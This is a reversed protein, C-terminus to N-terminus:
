WLVSILGPMSGTEFLPGLYVVKFKWSKRYQWGERALFLHDRKHGLALNITLVAFHRWLACWPDTRPLRNGAAARILVGADSM